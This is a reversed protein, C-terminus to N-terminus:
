YLNHLWDIFIVTQVTLWYSNPCSTYGILSFQLRFLSGILILVTTQDILWCVNQTALRHFNCDLLHALFHLWGILNLVNQKGRILCGIPIVVESVALLSDIRAFLWDESRLIFTTCNGKMLM